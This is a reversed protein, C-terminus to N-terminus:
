NNNHYYDNNDINFVYVFWFIPIFVVEFWFVHKSWLLKGQVLGLILSYILLPM